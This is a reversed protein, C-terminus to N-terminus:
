QSSGQPVTPSSPASPVSLQLEPSCNSEGGNVASVAYVPSTGRTVGTDVFPAAQTPLTTVTAYPTPKVGSVYNCVGTAMGKYINWSLVTGSQQWWLNVIPQGVVMQGAGALKKPGSMQAQTNTLLTAKTNQAFVYHSLGGVVAFYLLSVVILKKM